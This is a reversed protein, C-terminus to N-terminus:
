DKKCFVIERFPPESNETTTSPSAVGVTSLTLQPISGTHSHSSGGTTSTQGLGAVSQDALHTQSGGGSENAIVHGHNGPNDWNTTAVSEVAHYHERNVSYSHDHTNEGGTAGVDTSDVMPYVAEDLVTYRTWGAPCVGDFAAIAGTPAGSIKDWVSGDQSIFLTGGEATDISFYLDGIFGSSGPRNADIGGHVRLVAAGENSSYHDHDDGGAIHDGSVGVHWSDARGDNHYQTHDDDGLGTLDIHSLYNVRTFTGASFCLYVNNGSDTDLWGEGAVVGSEYTARQAATGLLFGNRQMVEIAEKFSVHHHGIFTFYVEEGANHPQIPSAAYGRQTPSSLTILTDGGPYTIDADEINWIEGGEFVIFTPDGQVGTFDEHLTVQLSDVAVAAKVTGTARDSFPAFLSSDDEYSTPYKPTTLEGM